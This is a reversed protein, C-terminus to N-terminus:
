VAEFVDFRLVKGADPAPKSNQVDEGTVLIDFYQTIRLKELVFRILALSSASAVATKIRADKLIILLEPIGNIPRLDTERFIRMLISIHLNILEDLSLSLGYEAKYWRCRENLVVGTLREVDTFRPAAGAAKIVEMDTDYHFPQSDILVGDMDFIVYGRM